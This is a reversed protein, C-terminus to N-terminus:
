ESEREQKDRFGAVGLFTGPGSRERKVRRDFHPSIPRCPPPNGASPRNQAPPSRRRAPGLPARRTRSCEIGNADSSSAGVFGVGCLSKTAANTRKWESRPRCGWIRVQESRNTKNCGLDEMRWARGHDEIQEWTWWDEKIKQFQIHKTGYNVSTM